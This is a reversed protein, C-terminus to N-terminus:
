SYFSHIFPSLVYKKEFGLFFCLLFLALHGTLNFFSVWNRISFM